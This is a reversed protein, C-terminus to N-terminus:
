QKIGAEVLEIIEMLVDVPTRVDKNIIGQVFDFLASKFAFYTDEVFLDRWGSEGMLRLTLPASAAGMASVLLQFGESYQASLISVDQNHWVRTRAITGRDKAFMLAPEIVHIAYKNWDKPVVAHIHRLCGLRALETEPLRFEKAYKVASCSFIQGPYCQLNIFQKTEALSLAIPKDIYIPLGAKIFPAALEYHNEADDRALLIGDVEGIMDTYHPSINDILTAKAIHEAVKRDQAWVHTVKAERILDEPFSQRELYRPIVPFGCGEMVVPDYGNFIASWSYPHGNGPSLGIVGLRIPKM